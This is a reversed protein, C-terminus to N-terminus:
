PRVYQVIGFLMGLSEGDTATGDLVPLGELLHRM